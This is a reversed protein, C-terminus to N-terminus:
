KVKVSAGGDLRRRRTPTQIDGEGEEDHHHAFNLRSRSATRGWGPTPAPSLFSGTGTFSPQAQLPIPIHQPHPAPPGPHQRARFLSLLSNIFVTLFSLSTLTFALAKWSIPEVFGNVVEAILEAGVKARGVIAPDRNMCTEWNGCQQAMAPISNSGCLNTKYQLACIAIEQVIDMSYESIRQEVDRQVTLIFQVVVYLFLLILSLNFLFQLYGLLIYPLDSQTPPAAPMNLTYHNSTNQVLAADEEDSDFVDEDEREDTERRRAMQFSRTKKRANYVRRLGGVAVARGSGEGGQKPSQAEDGKHPSAESMDVDNPEEAPPPNPFAKDPSFFPPPQWPHPNTNPSRPTANQNFIFPVNQNSGFIPQQPTGFPTPAPKLDDHPRKRPTSQDESVSWSPKIPTRSTWEYDMPAETSRTTRPNRQM